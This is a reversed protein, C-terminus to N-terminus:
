SAASRSLRICRQSDRVATHAEEGMASLIAAAQWGITRDRHNLAELLFPVAAQGMEKLALAACDQTFGKDEKLLDVLLPAVQPGYRALKRAAFCRVGERPDNFASLHLLIESEMDTGRQALLVLQLSGFWSGSFCVVYRRGLIKCM